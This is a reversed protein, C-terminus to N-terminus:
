FHGPTRSTASLLSKFDRTPAVAKRLQCANDRPLQKKEQTQLDVAQNLLQETRLDENERAKTGFAPLQEYNFLM